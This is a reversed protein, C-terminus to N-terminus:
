GGQTLNFIIVASLIAVAWKLVEKAIDKEAAGVKTNSELSVIRDTLNGVIENYKDIDEKDGISAQWLEAQRLRKSHSNLRDSHKNVHDDIAKLREEIRILELMREDITELKEVIKTLTEWLRTNEEESQGLM